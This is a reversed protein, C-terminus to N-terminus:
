LAQGGSVEAFRLRNASLNILANKYQAMFNVYQQQSDPAVLMAAVFYVIADCGADSVELETEDPSELSIPAPVARYEVGYSGDPAYVILRSGAQRFSVAGREGTVRTARRCGAPPAAQGGSVSVTQRKEIPDVAAAERQATDIYLPIRGKYQRSADSSGDEELLALVKTKIKGITM